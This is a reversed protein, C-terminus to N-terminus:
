FTTAYDAYTPSGSPASNKDIFVSSYGGTGKTFTHTENTDHKRRIYWDGDADEFFWYTYTGDNSKAQYSYADTAKGGGIGGIATIIDDQKAETALTSIDITSGGGGAGNPTMNDDFYFKNGMKVVRRYPIFDEPLQSQKVAKERLDKIEKVLPKLDVKTEVKIEKILKSLDIDKQKQPPRTELFTKLASLFGELSSTIPQSILEPLETLQKILETLDVPEKDNIAEHFQKIQEVLAHLDAQEAQKKARREKALDLKTKM